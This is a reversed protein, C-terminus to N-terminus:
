PGKAKRDYDAVQSLFVQDLLAARQQRLGIHQPAADILESIASIADYWFGAEAYLHPKRSTDAGILRTQLASPAEQLQIVGSAVVDRSRQELDYIVSVHWRYKVGPALRVNYDALPVRQIGASLPSPLRTEFLPEIARIEGITFEVPLSTAQSLYWYLSPQPAATLGVHDPALAAVKLMQIDLGRTGGGMRGTPASFKPPVYRPLSPSASRSQADASQQTLRGLQTEFRVGLWMVIFAVGMVWMIRKVVNM